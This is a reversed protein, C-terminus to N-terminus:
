PRRGQHEFQISHRIRTHRSSYRRGRDRTRHRTLQGWLQQLPSKERYHGDDYSSDVGGNRGRRRGSGLDELRALLGMSGTIIGGLFFGTRCALFVCLGAALFCIAFVVTVLVPALPFLLTFIRDGDAAAAAALYCPRAFLASTRRDGAGAATMM